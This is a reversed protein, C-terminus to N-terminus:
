DSQKRDPGLTDKVSGALPKEQELNGILIFTGKFIAAGLTVGVILAIRLFMDIFIGTYYYGIEAILNVLVLAIGFAIWVVKKM